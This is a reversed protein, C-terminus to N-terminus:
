KGKEKEVDAKLKLLDAEAQLREFRTLALTQPPSAGQRVRSDIFHEYEKLARVRAEYWPVRKAAKEELEAAVRCIEVQVTFYQKYFKEDWAGFSLVEKVQKLYLLGEQVQEFQVRRLPPADPGLPALPPLPAVRNEEVTLKTTGDPQKVEKLERPPKVDPFATYYPRVAGPPLGHGKRGPPPGKGDPLQGTGSSAALAGVVFLVCARL